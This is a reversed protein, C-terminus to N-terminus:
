RATGLFEVKPAEAWAISDQRFAPALKGVRMKAREVRYDPVEVCWCANQWPSDGASFWEGHVTEAEEHLIVRASAVFHAWENQSLKNDSNGITIYATTM